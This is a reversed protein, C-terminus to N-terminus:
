NVFKNVLNNMLILQNISKVAGHGAAHVPCVKRCGIVSTAAADHVTIDTAAANDDTDDDTLILM